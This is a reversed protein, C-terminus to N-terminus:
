SGGGLKIFAETEVGQYKKMEVAFGEVERDNPKKKEKIIKEKCPKAM